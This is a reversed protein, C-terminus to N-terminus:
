LTPAVYLAMEQISRDHAPPPREGRGLIPEGALYRREADPTRLVGALAPKLEYASDDVGILRLAAMLMMRCTYLFTVNDQPMPIQPEEGRDFAAICAELSASVFAHCALPRAAYVGCAHEVLLPCYLRGLEAAPTSRLLADRELVAEALEPRAKLGAAVFLAEATTVSVTQTCCHSCGMRCVVAEHAPTTREYLATLYAVADSCPSKSRPDTLLRVLQRLHAGM